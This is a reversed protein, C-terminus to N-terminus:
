ASQRSRGIRQRPVGYRPALAEGLEDGEHVPAGGNALLRALHPANVPAAGSNRSALLGPLALILHMCFRRGNSFSRSPRSLYGHRLPLSAVAVSPSDLVRMRYDIDAPERLFNTEFAM